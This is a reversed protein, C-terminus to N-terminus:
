FTTLREGVVFHLPQRAHEGCGITTPVPSRGTNL